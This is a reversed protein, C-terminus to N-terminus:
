FRYTGFIEFCLKDVESLEEKVEELYEEGNPM